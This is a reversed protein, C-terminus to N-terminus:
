LLSNEGNQQGETNGNKERERAMEAELKKFDIAKPMNWKFITALLRLLFTLLIGAIAAVVYSLSLTVYLVYCISAGFLSAVAYIRKRIIFPIDGLMLDRLLGGGVSSILGMSIAILPSSYGAEVSIMVGSVSFLGLASADIINNVANIRTEYEVFVRKFLTAFIIVAVSSIVCTLIFPAFETFFRPPVSGLLLDRMIGGAFCTILSLLVVGFYDAEKDIAVMAGSVAFAVIGIYEIILLATDM